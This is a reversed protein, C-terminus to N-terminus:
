VFLRFCQLRGQEASQQTTSQHTSPQQVTLVLSALLRTDETDRMVLTHQPTLRREWMVMHVQSPPINPSVNSYCTIVSKLDDCEMWAPGVHQLKSFFFFFFNIFFSISQQCTPLRQTLIGGEYVTLLDSNKKLNNTFYFVKVQVQM